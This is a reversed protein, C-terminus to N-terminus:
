VGEHNGSSETVSFKMFCQFRIRNEATGDHHTLGMVSLSVSDSIKLVADELLDAHIIYSCKPHKVADAPKYSM